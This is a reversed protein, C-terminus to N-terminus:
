AAHAVTVPEGAVIVRQCAKGYGLAYKITPYLRANVLSFALAVAARQGWRQVIEDRLADTAPDHAIAARAFRYGLHALEPMAAEDGALVAAITKASMGDELAFAVCLQTCPGCDEAVIAVLRAAHLAESPIDRRYNGISAARAFKFFARLDTDALDRLYSADYGYKKEFAALRRKIFWTLM